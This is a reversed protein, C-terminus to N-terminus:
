VNDSVKKYLEVMQQAKVDLSNQMTLPFSCATGVYDLRLFGM